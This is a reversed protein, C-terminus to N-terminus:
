IGKYITDLSSIGATSLLREKLSEFLVKQSRDRWGGFPKGQMDNLHVGVDKLRKNGLHTRSGRRGFLGSLKFRYRPLGTGSGFTGQYKDILVEPRKISSRLKGTRMAPWPTTNIHTSFLPVRRSLKMRIFEQWKRALLKLEKTKAKIYKDVYKSSEDIIIASVVGKLDKGGFKSSTLKSMSISIM